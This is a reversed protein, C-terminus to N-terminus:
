KNTGASVSGQLQRQFILYIILVPVATIVVAALGITTGTPLVRSRPPLESECRGRIKAIGAEPGQQDTISPPSPPLRDKPQSDAEQHWIVRGRRTGGDGNCDGAVPKQTSTSGQITMPASSHTGFPPRGLKLHDSVSATNRNQHRRLRHRLPKLRPRAATTHM